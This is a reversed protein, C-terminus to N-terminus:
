FELFKKILMIGKKQSKEPHFQLGFINNKQIIAPIRPNEETVCKLFSYDEDNINVYYSHCFYYYNENELFNKDVSKIKRWGINTKLKSIKSIELVESSFFGLGKSNGGENLDKFLMQMGLCIGIIKKNKNEFEKIEDFYGNKELFKSVSYANGVGPLIIIDKSKIEKCSDIAAVDNSFLTM